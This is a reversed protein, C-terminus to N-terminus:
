AHLVNWGECDIMMIVSVCLWPASRATTLALAPTEAVDESKSKLETLLKEAAAELETIRDGHAHRARAKHVRALHTLTNVQVAILSQIEIRARIRLRSISRTIDPM